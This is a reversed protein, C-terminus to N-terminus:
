KAKTIEIKEIVVPNVPKDTKEDTETVAIKDVVDMGEYAYGFVTYGLHLSPMGGFKSYVDLQKQSLNKMGELKEKNFHAQTIFFQSDLSKPLSSSAMSLTGRLPLYEESVEKEFGEGWISKGGTGNGKPDGGQIMFDNIVRHFTLGNYYGNKAHTVFNEVAKPAVEPFFKLKIDGYNKVKIIAIQEDKKPAKTMEEAKKMYDIDLAKKSRQEREKKPENLIGTKLKADNAKLSLKILGFVSLSVILITVILIIIKNKFEM